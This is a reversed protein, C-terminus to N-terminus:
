PHPRAGFLGLAFFRALVCAFLVGIGFLMWRMRRWHESYDSLQAFIDVVYAACYAVNAMVALVFLFLAKDFSLKATPAPYTVAFCAAVVLILAANYAARRVEWYRIADTASARLEDIRM